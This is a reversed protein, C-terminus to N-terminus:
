PSGGALAPDGPRATPAATVHDFGGDGYTRLIESIVVHYGRYWRAYERKAEVHAPHVAFERLADLTAWYYTANARHGDPSRWSESGLFGDIARAAREVQANLEHFRADYGGPEFNFAASYMTHLFNV